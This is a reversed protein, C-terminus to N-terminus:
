DYHKDIGWKPFYMDGNLRFGCGSFFYEKGSTYGADVLGKLRTKPLATRSYSADMYGPEISVEPCQYKDELEKTLSEIRESGFGAEDMTMFKGTGIDKNFVIITTMYAEYKGDWMDIFKVNSMPCSDEFQEWLYNVCMEAKSWLSGSILLSAILIIQKM